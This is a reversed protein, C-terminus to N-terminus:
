FELPLKGTNDDNKGIMEERLAKIKDVYYSKNYDGTTVETPKNRSNYGYYFSVTEGVQGIGMDVLNKENKAIKRTITLKEIPYNGSELETILNQYYSQAEQESAAYAKIYNVKFEKLLPLDTRKAGKIIPEKWDPRYIIYNKAKPVSAVCGSYELDVKIGEPLEYSLGKVLTEPDDYSFIVGDTDSEILVAKNNKIVTEMLDLIKRGYATVLAAAEYDNFSYGGTGLFGYSGNILIKLANQQHDAERNGEKALKKLRLREETMYKLVGLFKHEPDKKSCIGYTLMISPYLSSVDIKAVKRHLGPNHLTVKGGEYQVTPDATPESGKILSQHIKQAKLAPSATALEQLSINPVIKLQYYVIPILFNALLETDELDYTLYTKITELDGSHYCDQIQNHSLELRKEPRLKLALVCSKLNYSTLKSASKDWICAQQFTDIIQVNGCYVPTFKIPSGRFSSASITKEKDGLKFSHSVRHKDCRTILFPLDFSFLNHGILIDPNSSNLHEIAKQLLIKEDVDDYITVEGLHNRLGIMIVRDTKSNLGTTEIDIYVKTKIDYLPLEKTPEWQPIQNEPIYDLDLQELDVELRNGVKKVCKRPNVLLNPDLELNEYEKPNVLLNPDDNQINKESFYSKYSENDSVTVPVNNSDTMSEIVSKHSTHGNGGAQDYTTMGEIVSKHDNGGAQDYTTMSQDYTPIVAEIRQPTPTELKQDYLDYKKISKIRFDSGSKSNSTAYGLQVLESMFKRADDAGGKGCFVARTIMKTTIWDQTNKFKELFKAVKPSIPNVGIEFDGYISLTDTITYKVFEIAALLTQASVLTDPEQEWQFACTTPTNLQINNCAANLIHIIAAFKPAKSRNKRYLAKTAPHKANPRMEETEKHWNVWVNWAEETLGYIKPQLNDITRYLAYFFDDLSYLEKTPAPFISDKMLINTFRPWFGNVDETEKGMIKRLTRPQIGGLISISTKAIYIPEKGARIVNLPDGNYLTLWKEQEGGKGGPKYQDMSKILNALEDVSALLGRDPYPQIHRAIGEITFDSTSLVRYEPKNPKPLDERDEPKKKRNDEYAKLSEEYLNMREKYDRYSEAQMKDLAKTLMRILPSKGADSDGVLCLWIILAELHGSGPNICILTETGVLSSVVTLLIAAPIIGPQGFIAAQSNLQEALWRPMLKSIDFDKSQTISQVEKLIDEKDEDDLPPENDLPEDNEDLYEWPHKNPTKTSWKSVARKHIAYVDKKPYKPECNNACEILLDYSSKPNLGILSLSRRRAECHWAIDRVLINRDGQSTGTKIEQQKKTSLLPFLDIPKNLMIDLILQPCEAIETQSPASNPLFRYGRTEPHEGTLIQYQAGTRLELYNENGLDIKQSKIKGILNPPVKYIAGQRGEKGSTVKLTKPLLETLTNQSGFLYAAFKSAILGDVDIAMYMVGLVIAIAGCDLDNIFKVIESPLYNNKGNWDIEKAKKKNNKLKNYKEIPILRVDSPLKSLEKWNILGGSSNNDSGNSSNKIEGEELM